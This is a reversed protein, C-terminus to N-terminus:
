KIIITGRSSRSSLWCSFPDEQKYVINMWPLSSFCACLCSCYTLITSSCNVVKLPTPHQSSHCSCCLSINGQREWVCVGDIETDVHKQPGLYSFPSSISNIIRISGGDRVREGLREMEGDGLTPREEAREGVRWRKRGLCTRGNELLGWNKHYLCCEGLSHTM